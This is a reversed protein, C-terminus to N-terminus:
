GHRASGQLVMGPMGADHCRFTSAEGRFQGRLSSSLSRNAADCLHRIIDYLTMDILAEVIGQKPIM